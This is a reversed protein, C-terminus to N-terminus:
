RAGQKPEGDQMDGGCSRRARKCLGAEVGMRMIQCIAVLPASSPRAQALAEYGSKGIFRITGSM